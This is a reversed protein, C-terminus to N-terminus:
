TNKSVLNELISLSQLKLHMSADEQPGTGPQGVIQQVQRNIHPYGNHSAPEIDRYEPTMMTMSSSDESVGNTNSSVLFPM